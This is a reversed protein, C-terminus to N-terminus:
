CGNWHIHFWYKVVTFTIKNYYSNSIYFTFILLYFWWQKIYFYGSTLCIFIRDWTIPIHSSDSINIRTDLLSLYVLFTLHMLVSYTHMCPTYSTMHSLGSIHSPGSIHSTFNYLIMEDLTCHEDWNMCLSWITRLHSITCSWGRHSAINRELNMCLTEQSTIIGESTSYEERYLEYVSLDWNCPEM